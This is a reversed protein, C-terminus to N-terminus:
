LLNLGGDVPLTQGTVYPATALYEVAQAIDGTEGKRNLPIRELQSLRSQEIEPEAEQSDPWLIVGPAVANVRVEPALAVALSKTLQALGSKAAAYVPYDPMARGLNSDLMNVISGRQAALAPALKQSLWLPAQLNSGLLDDWDGDSVNAVPTPYFTSANNVLLDLRGWQQLAHDALQILQTKERLNAQEAHASDPRLQNLQESLATAADISENAHIVVSWGNGHLYEAIARGIRKGAGTVLAVKPRGGQNSESM